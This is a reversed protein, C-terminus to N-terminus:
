PAIADRRERLTQAASGAWQTRVALAVGEDYYRWAKLRLVAAKQDVAERFIVVQDADLSAPPEAARLDDYLQLYADGLRILGVLAYEPENLQAVAIIQREADSMLGARKGLNKAAKRDNSIPVEAAQDLWHAALAARARARVWPHAQTGELALLGGDLQRLGRRTRGARLDGMGRVLRLAADDEASWRNEALLAKAEAASEKDRGLDALVLARRFRADDTRDGGAALAIVRDYGALAPEYREAIEENLAFHWSAELHEPERALVLRLFRDAGATNGRERLLVAQDLLDATPLSEPPAALETASVPAEPDAAFPREVVPVPAVEPTQAASQAVCLSLLVLLTVIV